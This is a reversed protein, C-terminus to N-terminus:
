ATETFTGSITVEGGVYLMNGAPVKGDTVIMPAESGPLGAPCQFVEVGDGDVFRAWTPVGSLSVYGVQAVLTMQAETAHLSMCPVPLAVILLPPGGGNAHIEVAGGGAADIDDRVALLRRRRTPLAFSM